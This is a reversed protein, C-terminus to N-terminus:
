LAIKGTKGAFHSVPSAPATVSAKAAGDYKNWNRCFMALSGNARFWAESLANRIRREIEESTTKPMSRLLSKLQSVDAGTVLYPSGGRTESWLRYFADIAPQHRPDPLRKPSATNKRGRGSSSGSGSSSSLSGPDQPPMAEVPPPPLRSPYPRNPKQHKNFKPLWGYTNGDAEYLVLRGLEALDGLLREIDIDDRYPFCQGKVYPADARFRGDDDALCWLAEYFVFLDLPWAGTVKDTFYDPKVSRIKM